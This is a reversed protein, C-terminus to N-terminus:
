LAEIDRNGVRRALLCRAPKGIPSLRSKIVVNDHDRRRERNGSFNKGLKGLEFRAAKYEIDARQFRWQFVPQFFQAPRTTCYGRQMRHKTRIRSQKGPSVQNENVHSILLRRRFRFRQEGRGHDFPEVHIKVVMVAQNGIYEAQRM